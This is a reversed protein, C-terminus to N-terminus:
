SHTPAISGRRGLAEMAHLQVSKVKNILSFHGGNKCHNHHKNFIVYVTLTDSIYNYTNLFSNIYTKFEM